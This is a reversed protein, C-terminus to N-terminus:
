AGSKSRQEVPVALGKQLFPPPQLRPTWPISLPPTLHFPSPLPLTLTVMLNINPPIVLCMTVKLTMPTVLM